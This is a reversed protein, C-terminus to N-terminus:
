VGAKRLNGGKQFDLIDGGKIPRDPFCFYQIARNVSKYTIRSVFFYRLEPLINILTTLSSIIDKFTKGDIKHFTSKLKSFSIYLQQKLSDCVHSCHFCDGAYYCYFFDHAYQVTSFVIGVVQMIAVCVGVQMMEIFITVCMNATSIKVQTLTASVELQLTIAVSVTVKM